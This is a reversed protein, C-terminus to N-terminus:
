QQQICQAFFTIEHLLVQISIKVGENAFRCFNSVYYLLWVCLCRKDEGPTMVLGNIVKM